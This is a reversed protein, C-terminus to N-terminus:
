SKWSQYCLFRSLRSKRKVHIQNSKEHKHRPRLRQRFRYMSYGIHQTWKKWRILWDNLKPEVFVIGVKVIDLKQVKKKVISEVIPNLLAGFFNVPQLSKM